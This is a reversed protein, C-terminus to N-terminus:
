SVGKVRTLDPRVTGLLTILVKQVCSTKGVRCTRTGLRAPNLV